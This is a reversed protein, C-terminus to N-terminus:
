WGDTVPPSHLLARDLLTLGREGRRTRVRDVIAQEKESSVAPPDPVYPLRMKIIILRSVHFKTLLIYEDSSM